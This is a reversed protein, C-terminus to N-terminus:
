AMFANAIIEVPMRGVDEGVGHKGIGLTHKAHGRDRKIGCQLVNAHCVVVALSKNDGGLLLGVIWKLQGREDLALTDVHHTSSRRSPLCPESALVKSLSDGVNLNRSGTSLFEAVLQQVLQAGHAFCADKVAITWGLNSYSGVISLESTGADDGHAARLEIDLLKDDITVTVLQRHTYHSLKVNTSTSHRSAIVVEVVHRTFAEDIIM